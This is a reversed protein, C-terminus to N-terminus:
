GEQHALADLQEAVWEAPDKGEPTAQSLQKLATM